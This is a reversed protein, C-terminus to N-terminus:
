PKAGQRALIARLTEALKEKGYAWSFNAAEQIADQQDKTLGEPKVPAPQRADIYAIIRGVHSDPGDWTATSLIEETMSWLMQRFEPSDISGAAVVQQPLASRAAQWTEWHAETIPDLYEGDTRREFETRSALSEMEVEFLARERDKDTMAPTTM